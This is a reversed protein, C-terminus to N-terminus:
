NKLACSYPVEIELWVLRHDSLAKRDAFLHAVEDDLIPWFVKTDTAKLDVSPLVYDVRMGWEATHNIAHKNDPKNAAGGKSSPNLNQNISKHQLLQNIAGPYSEGEVPSANLDGLIIFSTPEEIGGQQGNDDYHYSDSKGDIYDKWFRIEDFNRRGNRDEKEDFVPPTPHSALINLQNGCIQIPVDWHSKSSLRMVKQEQNSYWSTGNEDLPMLNDPMDKWLFHQFTRVKDKIIPFRSLLVMGYQGPYHGFGFHTLRANKDTFPTRIGTNVPALYFYPYEIPSFGNQSVGLYNKKFANVGDEFDDIYDFENLLIIDPRVRQIIEAINKIQKSQGSKLENILVKNSYVISEESQYNTAEMSVNFTAIKIKKTPSTFNVPESVKM